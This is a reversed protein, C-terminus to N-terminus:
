VWEGGRMLPISGTHAATLINSLNQNRTIRYDLCPEWKGWISTRWVTMEALIWDM